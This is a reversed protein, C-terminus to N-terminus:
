VFRKALGPESTGTFSCVLPSMNFQSVMLQQLVAVLLILNKVELLM